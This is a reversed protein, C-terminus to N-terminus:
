NWKSGQVALLTTLILSFIFGSFFLLYSPQLYKQACLFLSGTVLLRLVFITLYRDPSSKTHQLLQLMGHIAGIIIGAILDLFFM